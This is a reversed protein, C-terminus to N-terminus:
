FPNGVLGLGRPFGVVGEPGVLDINEDKVARNNRQGDLDCVPLSSVSFPLRSTGFAGAATM